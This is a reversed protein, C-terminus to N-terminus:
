PSAKGKSKKKGFSSVSTKKPAGRQSPGKANFEIICSVTRTERKQQNTGDTQHYIPEGKTREGNRRWLSGSGTENDDDYAPRQGM